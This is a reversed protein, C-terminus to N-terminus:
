PAAESSQRALKRAREVDVQEARRQVCGMVQQLQAARHRRDCYQVILLDLAPIGLAAELKIAMWFRMQVKGRLMSGVNASSCGLATALDTNIWGREMMRRLVLKGAECAHALQEAQLRRLRAAGHKRWGSAIM